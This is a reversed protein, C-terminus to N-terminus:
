QLLQYPLLTNEVFARIRDDETKFFEEKLAVRIIQGEHHYAIRDGVEWASRLDHTVVISTAQLKKQTSRIIQNISMATVPDLGATPEDYLLITPRYVILRALAVRRRMGGSLDSPMKSETDKLGVLTLAEDVREQVEKASLWRQEQPDKHQTLFFATNEGVSMSDFLAANQFLMAVHKISTFKERQTMASVKLGDVEIEGEDPTVLGMICRLTVSKGAGSHGLIVLTEGEKVQLDLGRLIQHEGYRKWLNRVCIM